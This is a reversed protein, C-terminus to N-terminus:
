SCKIEGVDNAMQQVVEDTKKADVTPYRVNLTLHAVPQLPQAGDKHDITAKMTQAMAMRVEDQILSDLRKM